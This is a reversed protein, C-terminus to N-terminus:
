FYVALVLSLLSANVDITKATATTTTTTSTSGETRHTENYTVRLGAAAGLSIHPTIMYNAGLEAFAGAGWVWSDVYQTGFTVRQGGGLLVVGVTHFYLTSPALPRYGRVGFRVTGGGSSGGQGPLLTDSTQTTLNSYAGSADLLWASRPSRFYLAGASVFSFGATFQAAWQGKHFPTSDAASQQSHLTPAALSLALSCSAVVPALRM